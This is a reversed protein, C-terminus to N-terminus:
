RPSDPVAASHRGGVEVTSLEDDYGVWAMRDYDFCKCAALVRLHERPSWRLVVVAVGRRSEILEQAARLHYMPMTPRLHHATHEMIHHFLWNAPWPFLVHVTDRLQAERWDLPEDPAHWRVGPHTHHLYIVSSMAMSYVAFPVAVGFAAAEVWGGWTFGEGTGATRAALLVVPLLVAWASVLALDFLYVPRYGGVAAPRPFFMKGWWIACPYYLLHGAPTRFFRYAWRRRRPLRRYEAPTVPEWLYDRGRLNTYRHHIRNHGLDWLSFPHLAPLFALRGIVANLRRHRTLGGHCADHGVVFLLAVTVGAALAWLLRAWWPGAVAVGALCGGYWALDTVFTLVGRATSRKLFRASEDRSFDRTAPPECDLGM